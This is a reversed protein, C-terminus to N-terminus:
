RKHKYNRFLANDQEISGRIPPNIGRWVRRLWKRLLGISGRIPPNISKTRRSKKLGVAMRNFGKYPSQYMTAVKVLSTPKGSNFGKYPSQSMNFQSAFNSIHAMSPAVIPGRIPPNIRGQPFSSNSILLWCNDKEASCPFCPHPNLVDTLPSAWCMPLHFTWCM